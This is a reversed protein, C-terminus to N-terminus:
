LEIVGLTFASSSGKMSCFARATSAATFSGITRAAKTGSSSFFFTSGTAMQLVNIMSSGNGSVGYDFDVGSSRAITEGNIVDDSRLVAVPSAGPVQRYLVRGKSSTGGTDDFGSIWYGTGNNIMQPRSAFTVNWGSPLDPAPDGKQVIVGSNGWVADNGNVSPSYIFEGNDGIGMTSEGGSLVDPLADNSFFVPGTNWWVFRQGDALSGVFGVKGNGDTFPANLGSVTSVGLADGEKVVVHATKPPAAQAFAVLGACVVAVGMWHLKGNM